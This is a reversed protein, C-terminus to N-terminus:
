YGISFWYLSVNQATATNNFALQGQTVGNALAGHFTFSWHATPWVSALFCVHSTPWATPLTVIITAPDGAPMSYTGTGAQVRFAQGGFTTVGPGAAWASWSGGNNQRYWRNPASGAIMEWAEQSQYNSNIYIARVYIWNATPANTLNSGVYWGSSIIQNCDSGPPTPPSSPVSGLGVIEGWGITSWSGVGSAGKLYQGNVASTIDGATIPQWVAAGGSGKVWQGNVVPQPVGSGSGLPVWNTTSPSPATLPEAIETM